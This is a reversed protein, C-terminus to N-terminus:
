LFYHYVVLRPFAYTVTLFFPRKKWLLESVTMLLDRFLMSSVECLFHVKEKGIPKAVFTSFAVSVLKEVGTFM